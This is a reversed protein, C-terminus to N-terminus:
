FVFISILSSLFSFLIDLRVALGM